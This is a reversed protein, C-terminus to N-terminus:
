LQRTRTTCERFTKTQHCELCLAQGNEIENLGGDRIPIIHDVQYNYPLYLKCVNCKWAQGSAIKKRQVQTFGNMRRKLKQIQYKLDEAVQETDQFPQPLPSEEVVPECVEPPM